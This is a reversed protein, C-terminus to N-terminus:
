RDDLISELTINTLKMLRLIPKYYFFIGLFFLFNSLLFKINYILNLNSNTLDILFYPIFNIGFFILIIILRIFSIILSTKNWLTEQTINISDTFSGSGRDINNMIDDFEQPFNIQLYTSENHHYIYKFDFYIGLIGFINGFFLVIYSYSGNLYSYYNGSKNFIKKNDITQCTKYNEDDNKILFLIIYIISSLIFISFNIIFYYIIKEKIFKIFEKGNLLNILNSEFIFLYIIIGAIISFIINSFYYYGMLLIGIIYIFILSIFCSLLLYKVIKQSKNFYISFKCIIKWISLYFSSMIIVEESPFGWGYGCYFIKIDQENYENKSNLYKYSPKNYLIKLIFSIIYDISLVNTLIFCDYITFFNFIIAIIIYPFYISNLIHVIKIFIPISESDSNKNLLSDQLFKTMDIDSKIFNESKISIFLIIEIIILIIFIIILIKRDISSINKRSLKAIM